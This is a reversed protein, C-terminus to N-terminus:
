QVLGLMIVFVRLIFTDNRKQPNQSVDKKQCTLLKQEKQVAKEIWVGFKIGCIYFLFLLFVGYSTYIIHPM